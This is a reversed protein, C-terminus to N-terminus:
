TEFRRLEDFRHDFFDAIRNQASFIHLEGTESGEQLSGLAFADAAIGLGAHLGGNGRALHKNELGRV